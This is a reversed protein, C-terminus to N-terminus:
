RPLAVWDLTGGQYAPPQVEPRTLFYTATVGGAIIAAAGGWFWWKKTMPETEVVLKARLNAKQGPAVELASEYTMFGKKVVQVRYTGAPRTLDVPALGVDHGDVMVVARPQDSEVHITAPLEDLELKLRERANPAFTKNVLVDEHGPRSAQILHVGPDIVVEFTASPPPTGEGAPAVGAVLVGPEGGEYPLLPRGDIAIRASSPLLTITVRALVQTEISELLARAEELQAEPLGSPDSLVKRFSSRALIYRGLARQCYGINFTVVPAPKLQDAKEFHVLAESWQGAKVASTGAIFAERAALTVPDETTPAAKKKQAHVPGMTFLVGCAVVTVLLARYRM